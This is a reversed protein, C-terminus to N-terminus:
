GARIRGIERASETDEGVAQPTESILVGCRPLGAEVKVGRAERNPTVISESVPKGEPHGEVIQLRIGLKVRRCTIEAVLRVAERHESGIVDQLLQVNVADHGKPPIVVLGLPIDWARAGRPTSRAAGM